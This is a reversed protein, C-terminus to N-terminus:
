AGELGEFLEAVHIVGGLVPLTGRKRRISKWGRAGRHHHDVQRTDPDILLVDTLTDIQRYLFLKTTRDYEATGQSLVEFLLVPNLLIMKDGAAAKNLYQWKGCAVGGDPYTYFHTPKPVYIRQDSTFTRCPGGRVLAGLAIIANACVINHPGKAGAMAYIQGNLFEHKIESAGELVLYEEETWKVRHALQPM